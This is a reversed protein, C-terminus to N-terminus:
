RGMPGFTQARMLPGRGSNRKGKMQAPGKSPPPCPSDGVGSDGEEDSVSTSNGDEDLTSLSAGTSGGRRTRAANAAAFLSTVGGGGSPASSRQPQPVQQFQSISGKSMSDGYAYSKTRGFRTKRFQDMDERRSNIHAPDDMRIYGRPKCTESSEKFYQCYGGSLIYVEPYLIKPYLHNHMARDKSRLHKAFTPARKASFECHFVLVTKKVGDGSCGPSSGPRGSGLFFEEIETTTNINIAGPIHGGAYEYDFRCDIVHYEAIQSDFKGDLLSNLTGCDIRMLGDESVRHCPLIKGHAENDGFGPLGAGMHKASPSERELANEDLQRLATAGTLPRFDETGDRRRITKMTHRKAYAQAAPSSMDQSELSNDDSSTDGVGGAFMALKSPEVMASFARRPPPLNHREASNEKDSELIPYASHTAEGNMLASMTPRRPRKNAANATATDLGALSPPSRKKFLGDVTAHGTSAFRELRRQSPSSPPAPSSSLPESDQCTDRNHRSSDPSLSRRKKPLHPAPQQQNPSMSDFFLNSFSGVTPGATLPVPSSPVYRNEQLPPPSWSEVPDVDMANPSPPSVNVPPPMQNGGTVSGPQMQPQPSLWELPLAARQLRKSGSSSGGKVSPNPPLLTQNGLERGFTRSRPRTASTRSAKDPLLATSHVQPAPSIDMPVPSSGQFYQVTADRPPSNLSVTSAFSLELDSSLFEDLDDRPRQNKRLPAAPPNTVASSLPPAFYAM